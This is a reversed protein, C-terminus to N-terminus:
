FITVNLSAGYRSVGPSLALRRGSPLAFYEVYKKKRWGLGFAVIGATQILTGLIMLPLDEDTATSNRAQWLLPGLIPIYLESGFDVGVAIALGYSVGFAAAGGIILFRSRTETVTAGEPIEM